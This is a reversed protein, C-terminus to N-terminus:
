QADINFKATARKGDRTILIRIIWPGAMIIDMTARYKEVKLEANTTYNMPAMRPMPPMYYNVSVVADTVRGGSDKIEIEINNRGLIPPNRDIRAHIEFEGSKGTLDLDRSYVPPVAMLLAVICIGWTRM